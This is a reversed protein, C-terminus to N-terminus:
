DLQLAELEQAADHDGEALQRMAEAHDELDRLFRGVDEAYAASASQEYLLHVLEVITALQHVLAEQNEAARDLCEARRRAIALRRARLGEVRPSRRAPSQLTQMEYRLADRNSALLSQRAASHAVALRVYAGILDDLDDLGPGAARREGRASTERIRAAIRELECLELRHSEDMQRVLTAREAQALGKDIQRRVPPLRSVLATFALEAVFAVMVLVGAGAAMGFVTLFALVCLNVPSLM